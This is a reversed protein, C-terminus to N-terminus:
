SAKFINLAATDEGKTNLAQQLRRLVDAIRHEEVDEGIHGVCKDGVAVSHGADFLEIEPQGIHNRDLIDSAAHLPHALFVGIHNDGALIELVKVNFSDALIRPRQEGNGRVNEEEVGAVHVTPKVDVVKLQLLAFIVEDLERLSAGAEIFAAVLSVIQQHLEGFVLSGQETLGASQLDTGFM